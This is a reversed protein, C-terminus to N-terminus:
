LNVPNGCESLSLIGKMKRTSTYKKKANKRCLFLIYEVMWRPTIEFGISGPPIIPINGFELNIVFTLFFEMHQPLKLRYSYMKYQKEYTGQIKRTFLDFICIGQEM